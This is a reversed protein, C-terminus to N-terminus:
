RSGHRYDIVVAYTFFPSLDAIRYRNLSGIM